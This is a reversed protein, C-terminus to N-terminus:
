APELPSEPSISLKPYHPIKKKGITRYQPELYEVVARCSNVSIVKVKEGAPMKYSQGQTLM